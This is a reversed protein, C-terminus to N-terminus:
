LLFKDHQEEFDVVKGGSRKKQTVTDFLSHNCHIYRLLFFQLFDPAYIFANMFIYAWGKRLLERFEEHLRGEIDEKMTKQELLLEKIRSELARKEECSRIYLEKIDNITQQLNGYDSSYYFAYQTYKWWFPTKSTANFHSMSSTEFRRKMSTCLGYSRRNLCPYFSKGSGKWPLM